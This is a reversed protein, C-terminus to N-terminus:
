LSARFEETFIQLGLALNLAWSATLRRVPSSGGSLWGRLREIGQPEFVGVRRLARPSLAAEVFSPWRSGFLWREIPANFAQKRRRRLSEPIRGAMAKRLLYKERCCYLLLDSPVRATFEVLRHDLFPVRTEISHAMAVRDGLTLIWGDLRSRQEFLLDRHLPDQVYEIGLNPPCEPLSDIASPGASLAPAWAPDLAARWADALLWWQHSWPPVLGYRAEVGPEVKWWPLLIDYLGPHRWRLYSGIVAQRLFLRGGVLSRRLKSTKFVEYGALTEDAGEGTLVVKLGAQHVARALRYDCFAVTYVQPAEVARITGRYDAEDIEGQPLRQHMSGMAHSALDSHDSEDFGPDDQAFTMSFTSLPESKLASARMAVSVSDIGGSVLSGVPVDAVLHDRVVEDFLSRMRDVAEAESVAGKEGAADTLGPYPVTFYQRPGEAEKGSFTQWCAPLLSEIGCFMTRPPMPYGATGLDRLARPDIRPEVQGSALLAKAESAFLVLRRTCALLLPKIGFRDRALLLRRRAQDWLAFAFMGTLHRALEVGVDEYLHPIIESDSQNILRHGRSLLAQRVTRYNYLEGNMVCVVRGDENAIPIRGNEVDIIALRTCALGCHPDVYRGQGDPGRHTLAALMRSILEQGERISIEEAAFYGAIGCM